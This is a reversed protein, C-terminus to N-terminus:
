NKPAFTEVFGQVNKTQEILADCATKLFLVEMKRPHSKLQGFVADVHNKVEALSNHIMQFNGVKETFPVNIVTERLLAQAELLANEIGGILEAVSVKGAERREAM